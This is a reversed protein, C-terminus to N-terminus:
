GPKSVGTSSTDLMHQGVKTEKMGVADCGLVVPQPQARATPAMSHPRPSPMQKRTGQPLTVSFKAADQNSQAIEPLTEPVKEPVPNNSPMACMSACQSSCGRDLLHEMDDTCPRRPEGLKVLAHRRHPSRWPPLSQQKARARSLWYNVIWDDTPRFRRRPPDQIELKPGAGQAMFDLKESDLL